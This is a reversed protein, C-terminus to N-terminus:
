RDDREVKAAHGTEQRHEDVERGTGVLTTADGTWPCEKCVARYSM